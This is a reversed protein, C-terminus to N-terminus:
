GIHLSNRLLRYGADNLEPNLIQTVRYFYKICSEISVNENRDFFLLTVVSNTM